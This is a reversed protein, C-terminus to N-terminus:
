KYVGKLHQFAAILDRQLRRKEPNFLGFEKLTDECPLHELERIMKMARRQVQEWLEVDKRHQPGLTQVCYQLHPRLFASSFPAIVERARSGGRM